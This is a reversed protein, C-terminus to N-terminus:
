RGMVTRWFMEPYLLVTAKLAKEKYKPKLLMREFEALTISTDHKEDSVIVLGDMFILFHCRKRYHNMYDHYKPNKKLFEDRRDISMLSIYSMVRENDLNLGINFSNGVNIRVIIGEEIMEEVALYCSTYHMKAQQAVYRISFHSYPNSFVSLIRKLTDLKM